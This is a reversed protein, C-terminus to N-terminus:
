EAQKNAKAKGGCWSIVPKGDEIIITGCEGQKEDDKNLDYTDTVDIPNFPIYIETCYYGFIYLSTIALNIALTKNM